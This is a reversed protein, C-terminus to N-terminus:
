FNYKCFLYSNVFDKRLGSLFRKYLVFIGMVFDQSKKLVLSAKNLEGQSSHTHKTNNKPPRFRVLERMDFGLISEFKEQAKSIIFNPLNRTKYTKTIIQVLEERRIPVGFQEYNKFLMHRMVESTLRDIEQVWPNSWFDIRSVFSEWFDVYFLFFYKVHLARDRVKRKM